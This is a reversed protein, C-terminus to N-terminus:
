RETWEDCVEVRREHCTEWSRRGDSSHHTDCDTRWEYHSSVCRYNLHWWIAFIVVGIIGLIVLWGKLADNSLGSNRRSYYYSM